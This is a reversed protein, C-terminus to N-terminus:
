LVNRKWFPKKREAELEKELQEIKGLLETKETEFQKQMTEFKAKLEFYDNKTKHESDELLKVEKKKDSFESRILYFMEKILELENPKFSEQVPKSNEQVNKFQVDIIEPAHKEALEDLQEQTIIIKKGKPTDVTEFKGSRIWYYAKSKKLGRDMLDKASLKLKEM